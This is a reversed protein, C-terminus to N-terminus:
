IYPCKYNYLLKAVLFVSVNHDVTEINQDVIEIDESNCVHEGLDNANLFCKNCRDCSLRNAYTSHSKLHTTLCEESNFLQLCYKCEFKFLNKYNRHEVNEHKSLEHYDDFNENCIRDRLFATQNKANEENHEIIKHIDLEHTNDFTM